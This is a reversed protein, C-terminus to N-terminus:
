EDRLSDVPNLLAAKISQISVTALGIAIAIITAIVFTGIGIDTSYAFNELWGKMWFYSAPIAIISSIIILIIFDRSLLFLLSGISAGMVKRVGIEKVRQNIIFASLALLGICAILIALFTFILFIRGTSQESKYFQELNQDLFYPDFPSEPSFELWTNEINAMISKLDGEGLSIVAKNIFAQNSKMSLLVIPEMQNHLSQFHFDDIVGIVTFIINEGNDVVNEIKKGIPNEIGLKEVASKNLIMNLSDSFDNSFFRGEMMKMSLASEMKDGFSISRTVMSEKEDSGPVRIIYGPLVDGPMASTYAIEKVGDIKLISNRFTEFRQWNFNEPDNNLKFASNLVVVNEKEFGLPKNLLYSMQNYVLLTSSILAISIAFQLVVLVNRLVIGKGSSKLNGKLVYLPQFSSIFFAPYIGALLGVSISTFLYILITSPSAIQLLSLPRGSIDNFVPLILQVLAVAILASFVSVVISEILFQSILQQKASGLVKRIGVEKARETSRATSLNMFNICAIILIFVAVSSFIYVYKINGNAKIEGEYNSNLHIDKIHQLSYNYGNGAEIYEDYSIDNRAKMQGDAYQKVMQPIKSEVSAPDASENIKLYTLCSFGLWNPQNFFDLGHLPIIFNFDIHSNEPYDEFVASVTYLQQLFDLTKGFQNKM